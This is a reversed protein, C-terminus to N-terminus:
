KHKNIGFQVLFIMKNGICVSNLTTVIYQHGSHQDLWPGIEQVTAWHEVQQSGRDAANPRKILLM